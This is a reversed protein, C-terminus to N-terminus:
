SRGKAKIEEIRREIFRVVDDQGPGKMEPRLNNKLAAEYYPLANSYKGLEYYTNAINLKPARHLNPNTITRKELDLYLELSKQLEGLYNYYAAMQFQIESPPYFEEIIKKLPEGFRKAYEPNRLDKRLYSILLDIAKTNNEKKFAHFLEFPDGEIECEEGQFCKSVRFEFNSANLRWVSQPTQETPHPSISQSPEIAAQVANSPAVPANLHVQADEAQKEVTRTNSKSFLFFALVLFLCVSALFLKKKM